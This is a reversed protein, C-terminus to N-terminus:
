KHLRMIILVNVIVSLIYALITGSIRSFIGNEKCRIILRDILKETIIIYSGFIVIILLIQYIEIKDTVINTSNLGINAATLLIFYNLGKIFENGNFWKARNKSLHNYEGNNNQITM